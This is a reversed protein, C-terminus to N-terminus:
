ECVWKCWLFSEWSLRLSILFSLKLSNKKKFFLSLSFTKIPLLFFFLFLWMLNLFLSLVNIEAYYIGIWFGLWLLESVCLCLSLSLSLSLSGVVLLLFLFIGMESETSSKTSKEGDLSKKESFLSFKCLFFSFKQNFKPRHTWVEFARSPKQRLLCVQM